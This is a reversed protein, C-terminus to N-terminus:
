QGASLSVHEKEYPELPWSTLQKVVPRSSLMQGYAYVYIHLGFVFTLMQFTVSIM